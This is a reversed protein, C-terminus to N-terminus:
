RRGSGAALFDLVSQVVRDDIMHGLGKFTELRAQPIARAAARAQAVDICADALGHVILTPATVADLAPPGSGHRIALAQQLCGSPDFGRALVRELAAEAAPDLTEVMGFYRFSEALRHRVAAATLGPQFLDEMRQGAAASCHVAPGGDSSSLSVLFDVAGGRRAALNQAIMGGMSFGILGFRALGLAEALAEVDGAMAELGYPPPGGAAPGRWRWPQPVPPPSAADYSRFSRGADRNDLLVVRHRQALGEVLARPWEILQMGLGIVLIVAPGDAVGTEAYCLRGEPGGFFREEAPSFLGHDATASM